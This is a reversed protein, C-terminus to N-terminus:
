SAPYATSYDPAMEHVIADLQAKDSDTLPTKAVFNVVNGTIKVQALKVKVAQPIKAIIPAVAVVPVKDLVPRNREGAGEYRVGYNYVTSKVISEIHAKDKKLLFSGPKVVFVLDDGEVKIASLKAKVDPNLKQAITKNPKLVPRNFEAPPDLSGLDRPEQPQAPQAPPPTGQVFGPADVDGLNRPPPAPPNAKPTTKPPTKGKIFNPDDVDGLNRAPAQASKYFVDVFEIINELKQM